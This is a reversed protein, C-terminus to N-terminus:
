LDLRFPQLATKMKRTNQSFPYDKKYLLSKVKPMKMVHSNIAIQNQTVSIGVLNTVVNTAVVEYHWSEKNTLQNSSKLQNTLM